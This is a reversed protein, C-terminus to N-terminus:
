GFALRRQGKEPGGIGSGPPRGRGKGKPKSLGGAGASAMTGGKPPPPRPPTQNEKQLDQAFHFDEHEPRETEPIRKSCRPCTYPIESDDAPDSQQEPPPPPPATDYQGSTPLAEDDEREPEEDDQEAEQEQESESDEPHPNQRSGFFTPIGGVKIRRKKRAPGEGGRTAAANAAKAQDGRVLFGGIGLNGQVGDEFGGVALSLNACPWARGDVVVSALLNKAADFLGDETINKGMPIPAQKSRTQAGQRHHITLTKPRRKNDLVGEEVLRGFIDAIFIRLWRCAVEFSNISPRFSKASLMSKIQTRPNVESNDEGRIISHLWSGTEDGMQKKLQEIPVKLLDSVLDTNFAAVVEDGLKGGLNRIKTFKFGSMFQGVARNRIVTQANPKKHASGLKAMMKNRSLGASCTYQLEEWIRKRVDRVIESAILMVIDDWDPDDEEEQGSDLDVLADAKWDLATTPPRPLPESPDDYPPPGKLEPFRELLIGHVQASLDLFVEDISAKEVRQTEKPLMEKILALIRRSEIRYPDLSVKRVAIEKWADESYEWKADGEKWTAVHQCIIDPCKEKAETITVHRNLGYARAPYNIAILGQWQQVALPQDRPVDLRVMECQAYFADLDIHAIVRLPCTPSSHSLTSLQKYTFSSRRTTAHIPSSHFPQSSSMIANQDIHHQIENMQLCSVRPPRTRFHNTVDDGTYQMGELNLHLCHTVLSWHDQYPVPSNYFMKYEYKM